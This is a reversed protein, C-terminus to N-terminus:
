SCLCAGCLSPLLFCRLNLFMMCYLIWVLLGLLVRVACVAAMFSFLLFFCLILFMRRCVSWAVLGVLVGVSCVAAACM